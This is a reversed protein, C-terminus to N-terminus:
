KVDVSQSLRNIAKKVYTLDNIILKIANQPCVDVCLGCGRCEDNIEARRNLPLNFLLVAGQLSNDPTKLLPSNKFERQPLPMWTYKLGMPDLFTKQLYEGIQMGTVLRVLEGLVFGFNLMHYATKEGPPYVSQYQAIQKTVRKWSSWALIQSYLHPAPIGAQHLLV